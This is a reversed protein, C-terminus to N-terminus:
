MGQKVEEKTYRNYLETEEKTIQEGRELKEGVKKIIIKRVMLNYLEPYRALGDIGNREYTEEMLEEASKIKSPDLQSAWEMCKGRGEDDQIGGCSVHAVGMAVMLNDMECRPCKEEKKIENDSM